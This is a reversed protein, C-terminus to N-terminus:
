TGQSKQFIKEDAEIQQEVEYALDKLEDNGLNEYDETNEGGEIDVWDFGVSTVNGLSSKFPTDLEICRSGYDILFRYIKSRGNIETNKAPDEEEDNNPTLGAFTDACVEVDLYNGYRYTDDEFGTVMWGFNKKGNRGIYSVPQIHAGTTFAFKDNAYQTLTAKPLHKKSNIEM